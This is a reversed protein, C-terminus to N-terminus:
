HFLVLHLLYSQGGAGGERSFGSSTVDLWDSTQTKSKGVEVSVSAAEGDLCAILDENIEEM